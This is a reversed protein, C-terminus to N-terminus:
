VELAHTHDYFVIYDCASAHVVDMYHSLNEDGAKYVVGIARSSMPVNLAKKLDTESLDLVFEKLQCEHLQYSLSSSAPREIEYVGDPQGWEPAARVTGSYTTQM